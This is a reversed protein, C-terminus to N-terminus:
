RQASRMRSDRAAGPALVSAGYTAAATAFLPTWSPLTTEAVLVDGYQLRDAEALSRILGAEHM